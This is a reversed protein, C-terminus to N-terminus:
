RPQKDPQECSVGTNDNFRLFFVDDPRFSNRITNIVGAAELGGVEQSDRVVIKEGGVDFLVAM